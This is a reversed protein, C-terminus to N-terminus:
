RYIFNFLRTEKLGEMMADWGWGVVIKALCGLYGLTGSVRTLGSLTGSLENRHLVGFDAMRSGRHWSHLHVLLCEFIRDDGM